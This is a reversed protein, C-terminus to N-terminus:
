GVMVFAELTVFLGLALHMVVAARTANTYVRVATLILGTLFPEFRRESLRRRSPLIGKQNM